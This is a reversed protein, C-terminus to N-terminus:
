QEGWKINKISFTDMSPGEFDHWDELYHIEGTAVGLGIDPACNSLDGSPTAGIFYDPFDHEYYRYLKKIEEGEIVQMANNIQYPITEGVFILVRFHEICVARGQEDTYTEIM